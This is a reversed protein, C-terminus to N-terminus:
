DDLATKPLPWTIQIGALDPRDEDLGFAQRELPILRAMAASLDCIVRSRDTIKVGLDSRLDDLLGAATQRLAKIDWRHSRVVEVGRAAAEDILAEDSPEVGVLESKNARVGERVLSERVRTRVAGSLDRTWGHVKAHRTIGRDTVAGGQQRAIEKISLQGLRYEREIADWDATSSGVSVAPEPSLRARGGIM